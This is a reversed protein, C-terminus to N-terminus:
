DGSMDFARAEFPVSPKYLNRVLAMAMNSADVNDSTVKSLVVKCAATEYNGDANVFYDPEPLKICGNDSDVLKIWRMEGTILSKNSCFELRLSMAAIPLECVDLLACKVGGEAEEFHLHIKRLQASM